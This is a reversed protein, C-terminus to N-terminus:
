LGFPHMKFAKKGVKIYYKETKREGKGRVKLRTNKEGGTMRGWRGYYKAYYVLQGQIFIYMENVFGDM